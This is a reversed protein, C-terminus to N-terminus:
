NSSVLRNKDENHNGIHLKFNNRGSEKAHYMAKDADKILDNIDKGDEPFIAIGISITINLRHGDVLIPQRFKELIKQAVKIADDTWDIEWVLLLFEDGGIRAVTDSKRLINTLLHAAAILLKDGVDHGLSDNVPKFKDLDLMLISLKKCKRQAQVMAISLRDYLMIRNPLGTLSDHTAMEKLMQEMQKRETIERINCQIVKKHDVLYVNSVFEVAIQQGDKTELPLDKYRIYKQKQLTEFATKSLTRDVFMGIEWLKKGLLEERSYGLKKILFPNVEDIQGTEADLILIGDQATEFLRRFRTESFRLAKKRSKRGVQAKELVATRNRLERLENILQTRNKTKDIIM